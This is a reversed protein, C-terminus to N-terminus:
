EDDDFSKGSSASHLSALFTEPMLDGIEDQMTRGTSENRYSSLDIGSLAQLLMTELSSFGSDLRRELRALKSSIGQLTTREPLKEGQYKEWLAVLAETITKRPTEELGIYHDYCKVALKESEYRDDKPNIVGIRTQLKRSSYQPKKAKSM